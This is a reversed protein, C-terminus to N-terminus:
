EDEEIDGNNLWGDTAPGIKISALEYGGKRLAKIVGVATTGPKVIPVQEVGADDVFKMHLAPVSKLLIDYGAATRALLGPNDQDGDRKLARAFEWAQESIAM